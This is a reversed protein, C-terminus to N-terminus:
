TAPSCPRTSPRTRASGASRRSAAADARIAAAWARRDAAHLQHLPVERHARSMAADFASFDVEARPPDAEPLFKVRIPDLPTPDYPSIRHDAFNQFYMDVVRRKDADTKLQHYRFVNHSLDLGFATEIHNREPLAFNWVHLRLPVAASWGEAKLTSRARTIARGPTRPCTSWCGCRSTRAPRCIWRSTLRRCPTPGGTAVRRDADTPTHVFHYYVRLVQVNEAPITAGGPGSLAGAAATLQKLEKDPRVVIQVAERDNRAASLSAAPSADQPAPRQPAIKWAAECWWVETEGAIGEIRQGYDARDYQGACAFAGCISLVAVALLGWTISRASKFMAHVGTHIYDACVTHRSASSAVRISLVDTPVRLTGVVNIDPNHPATRRSPARAGVGSGVGPVISAATGADFNFITFGAAGLQRAHHIQGVVRDATMSIGTATAGIGPYLPVRGEILKVQNRVLAAFEKDSTTYDMPCVFDLYGAKVWAPWDQAVSQRCDPYSGFVAASIKLGPRIKKAERSM